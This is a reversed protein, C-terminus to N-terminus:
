TRLNVCYNQNSAERTEKNLGGMVFFIIDKGSMMPVIKASEGKFNNLHEYVGRMKTKVNLEKLTIKKFRKSERKEDDFSWSCIKNAPAYLSQQLYHRYPQRGFDAGGIQNIQSLVTPVFSKYFRRNM